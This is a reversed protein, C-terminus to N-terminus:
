WYFVMFVPVKLDLLQEHLRNAHEIVFKEDEHYFHVLPTDTATIAIGVRIKAFIVCRLPADDDNSVRKCSELIPVIQPLKMIYDFGSVSRPSSKTPPTELIRLWYRKKAEDIDIGLQRPQSKKEKTNKLTFPVVFVKNGKLHLFRGYTENTEQYVVNVVELGTLYEAVTWDVAAFQRKPKYIAQHTPLLSTYASAIHPQQM